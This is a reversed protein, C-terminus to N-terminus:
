HSLFLVSQSLQPAKVMTQAMTRKCLTSQHQFRQDSLVLLAPSAELVEMRLPEDDDDAADAGGDYVFTFYVEDNYLYVLLYVNNKMIMMTEYNNVM